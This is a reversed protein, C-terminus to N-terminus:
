GSDFRVECTPAHLTSYAEVIAAYAIEETRAANMAIANAAVLDGADDSAGTRRNM